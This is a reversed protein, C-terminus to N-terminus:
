MIGTRASIGVCRRNLRRLEEGYATSALAGTSASLSFSRSLSGESESAVAGSVGGRDSVTLMHAALLAKAREYYCHRASIESKAIELAADLRPDDMLQPAIVAIIDKALM